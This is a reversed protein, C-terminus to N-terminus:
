IIIKMRIKSHNLEIASSSTRRQRYTETTEKEGALRGISHTAFLSSKSHGLSVVHIRIDYLDGNGCQLRRNSNSLTQEARSASDSVFSIHHIVVHICGMGDVLEADYLFAYLHRCVDTSNKALELLDASGTPGCDRKTLYEVAWLALSYPWMGGFNDITNLMTMYTGGVTPDSVKIFLATITIHMCYACSTYLIDNILYVFYIYTPAAGDASLTFPTAWVILTGMLSFFTRYPIARIYIGTPNAGATYKAILCPVIFRIPLSTFAQLPIMKENSVGADLFKFFAVGEHYAWSFKVSILIVTFLRMAPIWLIRVGLKYTDM